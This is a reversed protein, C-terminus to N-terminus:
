KFVLTPEPVEFVDYSTSRLLRRKSRGNSYSFISINFRYKSGGEKKWQFQFDFVSPVPQGMKMLEDAFKLKELVALHNALRQRVQEATRDETEEALIPKEELEERAMVVLFKKM